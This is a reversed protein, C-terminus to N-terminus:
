VRLEYTATNFSMFTADLSGTAKDILVVTSTRVCANAGTCSRIAPSAQESAANITSIALTKTSVPNMMLKTYM